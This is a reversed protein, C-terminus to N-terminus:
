VLRQCLATKRRQYRKTTRDKCAECIDHSVDAYCVDPLHRRCRCCERMRDCTHCVGVTVPTIVMKVAVCAGIRVTGSVVDLNDMM